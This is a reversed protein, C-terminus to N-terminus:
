KKVGEKLLEQLSQEVSSTKGKDFGTHTQRLTGNRDYVFTTPMVKLQYREALKGNPDYVVRFGVPMTQLFKDALERKKDLNVAIVVLGEPGHKEQISNLWPFSAKCPGCWSAWFDLYVVKGRYASLDLDAASDSPPALASGAGRAAPALLWGLIALGTLALLRVTYRVVTRNKM